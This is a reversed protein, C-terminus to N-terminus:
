SDKRFRRRDIMRISQNETDVIVDDDPGDGDWPDSRLDYGTGECPWCAMDTLPDVGTGGCHGCWDGNTVVTKVNGDLSRQCAPCIWGFRSDYTQRNAEVSEGCTDCEVWHGDKCPGTNHSYKRKEQGWKIVDYKTGTWVYWREDDFLECSKWVGAAENCLRVQGATDMLIFKSHEEKAYPDLSDWLRDLTDDDALSDTMSKALLFTDSKKTAYAEKAFASLIGNHMLGFRGGVLFPHTMKGCVEGSTRIRFHAAMARDKQYDGRWARMFHKLKMFGKRTVLVGDHAFMYGAGDPNERWCQRLTKESIEAKAPKYVAICM